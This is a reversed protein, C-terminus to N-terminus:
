YENRGRCEIGSLQRVPDTINNMLNHVQPLTQVEALVTMPRSSPKALNYNTWARFKLYGHEQKSPKSTLFINDSAPPEYWDITYKWRKGKM